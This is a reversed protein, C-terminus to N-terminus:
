AGYHILGPLSMPDPSPGAATSGQPYREATPVSSFVLRYWESPQRRLKQWGRDQAYKEELQEALRTIRTKELSKAYRFFGRDLNWQMVFFMVIVTLVAAALISVFFRFTIGFKM